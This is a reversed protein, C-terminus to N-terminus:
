LVGGHKEAFRQANRGIPALFHIAVIVDRGELLALRLPHDPDVAIVPAIQEDEPNKSSPTGRVPQRNTHTNRQEPKVNHMEKDRYRERGARIVYM